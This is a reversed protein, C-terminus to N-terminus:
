SAREPSWSFRALSCPLNSSVGAINYPPASDWARLLPELRARADAESRMINYQHRLRIQSM